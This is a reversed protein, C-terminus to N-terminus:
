THMLDEQQDWFTLLSLFYGLLSFIFVNSFECCPSISDSCGQVLANPVWSSLISGQTDRCKQKDKNKRFIRYCPRMRLHIWKFM